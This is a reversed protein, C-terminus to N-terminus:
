LNDGTLRCYIFYIFLIYKLRLFRKKRVCKIIKSDLRGMKATDCNQLAQKTRDDNAIQLFYKKSLGKGFYQENRLCDNVYLLLQTNLQRYASGVAQVQPISSLTDILLCVREWLKQKYSNVISAQNFRYYYKYEDVLKIKKSEFLIGITLQQDEGFSVEELCYKANDKVASTKFLKAWRCNAILKHYDGGDLILRDKLTDVEYVGASLANIKYNEARNDDYYRQCHMCVVDIDDSMNDLLTELYTFEVFDDGDIFAIYEGKAIEVGAKWASVLGGNKKHLVVVRKDKSAYEDCIAPCNDPSGDDVLILEFDQFTQNLISDVCQRLYKEVKYIPVIVSVKM